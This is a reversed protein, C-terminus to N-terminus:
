ATTWAPGMRPNMSMQRATHFAFAELVSEHGSQDGRGPLKGARHHSPARSSLLVLVQLLAFAESCHTGPAQQAQERRGLVARDTCSWIQTESAPTTRCRRMSGPNKQPM